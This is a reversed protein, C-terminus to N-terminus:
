GVPWRSIDNHDDVVSISKSDAAWAFAGINGQLTNSGLLVRQGTLVSWVSVNGMFLIALYQENPSWALSSVDGSLDDSWPSKNTFSALQYASRPNNIRGVWLFNQYTFAYRSGSPSSALSAITAASADLPLADAIVGAEQYHQGDWMEITWTSVSNASYTSISVPVLLYRSDPMWALANAISTAFSQQFLVEGTTASLILLSLSNGGIALYKGAPSWALVNGSGVGIVPLTFLQKGSQVDWIANNNNGVVNFTWVQKKDPSWLVIMNPNYDPQNITTLLRQGQDTYLQIVTTFSDYDSIVVASYSLDSSWFFSDQAYQNVTGSTAEANQVLATNKANFASQNGGTSQVHQGQSGRVLAIGGVLAAGGALLGVTLVRRRTTKRAPAPQAPTSAAQFIHQQGSSGTATLPPIQPTQGQPPTWIRAHPNAQPRLRQIRQLETRVVRIGAPRRAPELAVLHSILAELERLGETGPLRLPPFQFPHESPDDGSILCYLLAGLSYIDAQPTTQARGYQEPAAFGPSGFPITDKAQGPKFRRAIGFDILYLSGRTARMINGPKLDRFIVPPQQTHLYRLVDCLHLGIALTEDLSLGRRSPLASVVQQELYDDLTQGEIFNMVLYWHEPDSFRDYIRPLLPHSLSTLIEAERNFADTAEIIEQSSLGKLNIQKVAVLRGHEHTDRAKYVAGFGGSGVETLLQYRENLLVTMDLMDTSGALPQQCAHCLADGPM